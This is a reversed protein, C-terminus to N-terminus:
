KERIIIDFFLINRLKGSLLLKQPTVLLVARNAAFLFHGLREYFLM